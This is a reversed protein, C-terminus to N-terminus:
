LCSYPILYLEVINVDVTTFWFTCFYCWYYFNNIIWYKTILTFYCFDRHKWCFRKVLLVTRTINQLLMLCKGEMTAATQPLYSFWFLNHACGSLLTYRWRRPRFVLRHDSVWDQAVVYHQSLCGTTKGRRRCTWPLYFLVKNINVEFIAFIEKLTLWSNCSIEHHAMEQSLNLIRSSYTWKEQGFDVLNLNIIKDEGSMYLVYIYLLLHLYM